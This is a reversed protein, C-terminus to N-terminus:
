FEPHSIILALEGSFEVQKEGYPLIFSDALELDYDVGDLTMQGSGEIVTALYYVDELDAVLKDNVNYKSVSFYENSMFQIVSANSSAGGMVTNESDQHPFTTVDGSAEIHLERLEGSDDQRNYDYVRYTTDSSQQTELVVVGGGIAHITGAPVDIFDGAKVPVERLLGQWNGDMVLQDFEERTEVTHGYVIKADDDASIVYWCETKGLENAGEHAQAYVDDPHVQVSLDTKADLIKVLLPFPEPHQPGFLQPEQAYLVDLGLGVFAKPASVTAVGNPHASIVWAEGTTESPIELGFEAALKEGGWIKEQLVPKLFIPLMLM